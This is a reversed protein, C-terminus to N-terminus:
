AAARDYDMWERMARWTSPPWHHGCARCRVEVAGPPVRLIAGCATDNGLDAPCPGLTTGTHEPPDIIALCEIELRRLEQALDNGLTWTISIWTLNGQLADVARAIRTTTDGAHSPATFGRSDCIASHWDELVGVIGGPGRLNLVAERVPLPAEVSSSSGYEPKRSGPQLWAALLTYLGPLDTLNQRLQNACAACLQAPVDSTHGCTATHTATSTM